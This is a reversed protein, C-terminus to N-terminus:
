LGALIRVISSLLRPVSWARVTFDDDIIIHDVLRPDLLVRSHREEFSSGFLKNVVPLAGFNANDNSTRRKKLLYSHLVSQNSQSSARRRSSSGIRPIM